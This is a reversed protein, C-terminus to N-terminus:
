ICYNISFCLKCLNTRSANSTIGLTVREDSYDDIATMTFCHDAM